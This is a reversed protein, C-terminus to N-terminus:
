GHVYWGHYPQREFMDLLTAHKKRDEGEYSVMVKTGDVVPTFDMKRLTNVFEERQAKKWIIASCEITMFVVGKLITLAM